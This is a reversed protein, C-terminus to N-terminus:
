WFVKEGEEIIWSGSAGTTLSWGDFSNNVETNERMEEVWKIADSIKDFSKTEIDFDGNWLIINFM